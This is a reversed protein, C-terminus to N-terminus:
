YTNIWVRIIMYLEEPYIVIIGLRFVTSVAAMEFRSHTRATAKVYPIRCIHLYTIEKCDLILNSKNEHSYGYYLWHNVLINGHSMEALTSRVYDGHTWNLRQQKHNWGLCHAMIPRNVCPQDVVFYKPLGMFSLCQCVMFFLNLPCLINRSGDHIVWWVRFSWRIMPWRGFFFFFVNKPAGPRLLHTKHWTELDRCSSM